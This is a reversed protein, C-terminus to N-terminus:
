STVGNVAQIDAKASQSLESRGPQSFFQVVTYDLWGCRYSREDILIAECEMQMGASLFFGSGSLYGPKATRGRTV